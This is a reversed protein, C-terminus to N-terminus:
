IGWLFCGSNKRRKYVYGWEEMYKKQNYWMKESRVVLPYLTGYCDM